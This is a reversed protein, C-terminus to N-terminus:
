LYNHVDSLKEINYHPSIGVIDGHMSMCNNQLM